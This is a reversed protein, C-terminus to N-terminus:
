KFFLLYGAIASLLAVVVLVVPTWDFAPKRSKPKPKRHPAPVSAPLPTPQNPRYAVTEDHSDPTEPTPILVQQASSIKGPPQSPRVPPPATKKALEVVAPAVVLDRFEPVSGIPVFQGSKTRGVLITGAEGLLNEKLAKRISETAGKVTHTAGTEDKYVMYWVDSRAAPQVIASSTGAGRSQGTLDELFERCSAPRQSPEASMARRIAWDVRDSVAKNLTKPAPFENRIKKM